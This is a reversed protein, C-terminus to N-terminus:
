TSARARSTRAPQVMAKPLPFVVSFTGDAAEYVFTAGPRGPVSLQAVLVSAALMLPAALRSLM